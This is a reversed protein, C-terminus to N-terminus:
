KRKKRTIRTKMITLCKKAIETPPLKENYFMAEVEKPQLLKMSVGLVLGQIFDDDYDGSPIRFIM